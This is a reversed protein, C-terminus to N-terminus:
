TSVCITRHRDPLRNIPRCSAPFRRRYRARQGAAIQLLAGQAGAGENSQEAYDDEPHDEQGAQEDAPDVAVVAPVRVQDTHLAHLPFLCFATKIILQQALKFAKLPFLLAVVFTRSFFFTWSSSSSLHLFSEPELQCSILDREKGRRKWRRRTM